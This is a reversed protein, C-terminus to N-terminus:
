KRRQRAQLRNRRQRDQHSMGIKEKTQSTVLIVLEGKGTKLKEKTQSTLSDGNRRQRDQHSIGRKGKRQSTFPDGNRRQRNQHSIM